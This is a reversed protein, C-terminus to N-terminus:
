DEYILRYVWDGAIDGYYAILNEKTYGKDALQAAEMVTCNLFEQLSKVIDTYNAPMLSIPTLEM